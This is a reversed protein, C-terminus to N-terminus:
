LANGCWKHVVVSQLRRDAGFWWEAFVDILMGYTEYSGLSRLIPPTGADSGGTIGGQPWGQANVWAQVESRPTGLPMQQKLDAAIADPSRRLPNFLPRILWENVILVVLLSALLLCGVRWRRASRPPQPSPTNLEAYNDREQDV